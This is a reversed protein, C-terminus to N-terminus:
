AMDRLWQVYQVNNLHKWTDLHSEKVIIEQQYIDM